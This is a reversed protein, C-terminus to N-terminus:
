RCCINFLQWKYHSFAAFYHFYWRNLNCFLSYQCIFSQGVIKIERLQFADPDKLKNEYEYNKSKYKNIRFLDHMTVNPM